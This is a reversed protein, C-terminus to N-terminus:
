LANELFAKKTNHLCVELNYSEKKGPSSSANLNLRPEISTRYLIWLPELSFAYRSM